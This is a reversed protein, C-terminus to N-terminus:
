KKHRVLPSLSACSVKCPNAACRYDDAINKYWTKPTLARKAPPIFSYAMVIEGKRLSFCIDNNCIM